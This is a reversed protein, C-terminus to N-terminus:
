LRSSAARLRPCPGALYNMVMTLGVELVSWV